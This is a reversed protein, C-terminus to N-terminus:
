NNRAPLLKWLVFALGAYLLGNILVAVAMLMVAFTTREAGATGLLFISSPWIWLTWSGFVVKFSANVLISALATTLGLFFGITLAKVMDILLRPTKLSIKCPRFTIKRSCTARYM